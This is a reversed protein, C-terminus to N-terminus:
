FDRGPVTTAYSTANRLGELVAGLLKGGLVALGAVVVASVAYEVAAQGRQGIRGLGKAGGSRAAM